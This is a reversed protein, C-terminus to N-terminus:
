QKVIRINEIMQEGNSVGVMYIGNELASMDVDFTMNEYEEFNGNFVEMVKQGMMDFMVVHYDGAKSLTISITTFNDTPNPAVTMAASAQTTSIEKASVNGCATALEGCAGLQCGIALHAPVASADVCITHANSPNGPPVQCMEVKQIGSNGAYCTVDVVCISLDDSATCGNADTVSVTYVENVTPCATLTEGIGGGSNTSTWVVSYSPTGGTIAADLSACSMPGYGAFVTEDGGANVTLASPETVAVTTSASCGNADVVNYVYTGAGVTYTGADDTSYPLTGGWTSVTVDSTGGNCLISTNSASINVKTPQTITINEVVQCGNGDTVAYSYTGSSLNSFNGTGNYPATGGVAYITVSGDSSGFCSVGYGNYNSAVISAILPSPESINITSTSSCGNADSVTYNYTGSSVAFTGTGQYPLTGGTAAVIVSTNGGNCAITGATVNSTLAAPQTIQVASQASCGYTGQIQIVWSAPFLGSVALTGDGTPNNNSSINDDSFWNYNYNMGVIGGTFTAVASGNALGFCTINQSSINVVPDAVVTVLQSVNTVCTPNSANWIQIRYARTASPSANQNAIFPASASSVSGINIWNGNNDQYQWRYNLTGSGSVAASLATTGGVCITANPVSSTISATIPNPQTITVTVNATCNNAGTVTVSYTGAALATLDQTNASFGNPGSWSYTFPGAGNVTLDISGNSSGNCTVNNQSISTTIGVNLIGSVNSSGNWPGGGNVNYGGYVYPCGTVAYRMAYYYTGANLNSGISALFEDNNPNFSQFPNFTATSWNTWTSPNTNSTSYGIQATLGNGQGPSTTLGPEYVQGYITANGGVCIAASSPFQLNYWDLQSNVLINGAYNATCSGSNLMILFPFNGSQTPTGSITLIGSNYSYNVGQPLGTVVVSQANTITYNMTTIPSGLCVTQSGNTTTANPIPLITLVGSNSTTGNWPGNLGGYVPACGNYTYRFAYYYTGPALNSGFTAVFEDDNGVQVNFNANQWNTWTAPNSNTTSWGISASLGPSQGPSNTVGAEYVKGYATMSSLQCITANPPFQTNYWDLVSVCQSNGFFPFFGLFILGINSAFKKM